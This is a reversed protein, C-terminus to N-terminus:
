GRGKPPAAALALGEAAVERCLAAALVAPPPTPPPPPGAGLERLLEAVAARAERAEKPAKPAELVIGWPGRLQPLNHFLLEDM